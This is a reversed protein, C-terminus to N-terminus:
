GALPSRRGRPAQRRRASWRELIVETKTVEVVRYPGLPDGYVEFRDGVKWPSRTGPALPVVYVENEDM